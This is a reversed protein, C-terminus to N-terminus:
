LKNIFLLNYNNNTSKPVKYYLYIQRNISYALSIINLYKTIFIFNAMKIFRNVM